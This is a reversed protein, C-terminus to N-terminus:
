LTYYPTMTWRVTIRTGGVYDYYPGTLRPHRKCSLVEVEDILYQHNFSTEYDTGEYIVKVPGTNPLSHFLPILGLAYAYSSLDDAVVVQFQKGRLGTRVKGVGDVGVRTFPESQLQVTLPPPSQWLEFPFYQIRNAATAAPM